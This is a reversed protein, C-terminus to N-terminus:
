VDIQIKFVVLGNENGISWIGSQNFLNTGISQRKAKGVPAGDNKVQLQLSNNSDAKIVLWVKEAGGHKVANTIAEELVDTVTQTVSPSLIQKAISQDIESEIDIVAAWPKSVQEIIQTPNSASDSATTLSQTILDKIEGIFQFDSSVQDRSGSKEKVSNSLVKSQLKGHIIQEWKHADKELEQNLIKLKFSDSNLYRELNEKHQGYKINASQSVHGTFSLFLYLLIVITYTNIMSSNFATFFDYYKHLFYGTATLASINLLDCLNSLWVWNKVNRYFFMQLAHFFYTYIAFYSLIVLARYSQDNKIVSIAVVFTIIFTFYLPNLPKYKISYKYLNASKVTSAFFSSVNEMFAFLNFGRKFGLNSLDEKIYDKNKSNEIIRIIQNSTIRDENEVASKFLQSQKIENIVKISLTSNLLDNMETFKRFAVSAACCVPMFVAGMLGNSVFFSLYSRETYLFNSYNLTFYIVISSASGGVFGILSIQYFFLSKRGSRQIYNRITRFIFYSIILQASKVLSWHWLQTFSSTVSKETLSAPFLFIVLFYLHLDFEWKSSKLSRILLNSRVQRGLVVM